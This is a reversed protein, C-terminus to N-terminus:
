NRDIRGPVWVSGNVSILFGEVGAKELLLVAEQLTGAMCATALGDAEMCTPAIVTASLIEGAVPRGTLPSITHAVKRGNEERYNRYNGSTAVGVDTLELIEAAEEGPALDEQPMDIAIRWKGGSPSAGRLAIEGGIEVMYDNVGNRRFMEGVADCGYGKAIASFNFRTRLDDKIIWDDDRHTKRIGVFTLISDIALTDKSAVHGLGFGWADVLPSVTPDFKGESLLSIKKAEDYVIVLHRDARVKESNNLQSILSNKDFVSLSNGVENLVPLISDQLQARGKYTIHYVTNWIMGETKVYGEHKSCGVSIGLIVLALLGLYKKM